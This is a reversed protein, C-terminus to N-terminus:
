VFIYIDKKLPVEGAKTAFTASFATKNAAYPAQQLTLNLSRKNIKKSMLKKLQFLYLYSNSVTPFHKIRNLPPPIQPQLEKDLRILSIYIVLEFLFSDLYGDTLTNKHSIKNFHTINKSLVFPLLRTRKVIISIVNSLFFM